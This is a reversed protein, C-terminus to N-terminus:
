RRQSVQRKVNIAHSALIHWFSRASVLMRRVITARSSRGTRLADIVVGYHNELFQWVRTIGDAKDTAEAVLKTMEIVDSKMRQASDIQRNIDALQSDYRRIEDEKERKERQLRSMKEGRDGWVWFNVIPVFDWFNLREAENYRRQRDDRDGQVRARLDRLQSIMSQFGSIKTNLTINENKMASTHNTMLHLYHRLKRGIETAETRRRTLEEKLSTLENTLNVRAQPDTDIMDAYQILQDYSANYSSSCALIANVSTDLAPFIESVFSTATDKLGSIVYGNYTRIADNVRSLSSDSQGSSLTSLSKQQIINVAYSEIRHLLAASDELDDTVAGDLALNLTELSFFCLM